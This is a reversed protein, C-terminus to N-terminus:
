NTMADLQALFARATQNRPDSRLARNWARRAEAYHGNNGYAVGLNVWADTFTSDQRLVLHYRRIAAATEGSELLATALNTHLNLDWPALTLAVKLAEAARDYMQGKRHAESLNMWAELDNPDRNIVEQAENISQQIQQAEDARELYVNAEAEKGLRMLAQGLNYQAGHHWVRADAVRRLYPEAEEVRGMRFLQSGIIYQYDLNEPRIEAGRRSHELAQEFDGMEEFLQGLWMHATANTSDLRIAEQYATRASDAEGLKAYARGIELYLNTNPALAEEQRFRKIADRLDGRRAHNIGLNMHAGRYQPDTELVVEYAANAVDLRNMETYIRGRMFHIDALDPAMKEASDTLAIAVVYNGDEFAAQSELLFRQVKPDLVLRQRETKTMQQEQSACGGLVAAGLLVACLFSWRTKSKM